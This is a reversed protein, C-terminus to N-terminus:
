LLGCLVLGWDFWNDVLYVGGFYVFGVFVGGRIYVFLCLIVCVWLVVTVLRLCRLIM